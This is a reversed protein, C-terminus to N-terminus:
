KQKKTLYILGMKFIFRLLLYLLVLIKITKRLNLQNSWSDQAYAGHLNIQMINSIRLDLCLTLKAVVLKVMFFFQAHLVMWSHILSNTWARASLIRAKILDMFLNSLDLSHKTLACLTMRLKCFDRLGKIVILSNLDWESV